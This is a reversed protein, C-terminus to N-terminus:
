SLCTKSEYIKKSYFKFEPFGDKRNRIFGYQPYREKLSNVAVINAHIREETCPGLGGIKNKFKTKIGM